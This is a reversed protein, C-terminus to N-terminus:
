NMQSNSKNKQKGAKPQTSKEKFLFWRFTLLAIFAIPKQAV